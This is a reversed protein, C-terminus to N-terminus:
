KLTNPDRNQWNTTYFYPNIKYDTSQYGSELFPKVYQDLQLWGQWGIHITDTMFCPEAGKDIFNVVNNFGQSKLQYQIKKATEQMMPQSLGTVESWKANVPTIVFLVDAKMDALKSLVLELDSYEKSYRYDYSKQTGRYRNVNGQLRTTYFNNAIGLKNNSTGEKGYKDALQSIKQYQYTAPLEKAFNNIKTLNSTIGLHGFLRDERILRDYTNAINRKEISTFPQNTKVKNLYHALKQSSNVVSFDLVRGAYYREEKSFSTQDSIQDLWSYMQVASYWHNYYQEEIGGKVFWQPSIIFVVKRKQGIEKTASSMIQYQTLSQTGASGILFPTYGRQYKKALVSPHTLDFRNLESSGFFPVYERDALIKNKLVQGTLVTQSMSSSAKELVRPSDKPEISACIGLAILATLIPGFIAFLKKKM